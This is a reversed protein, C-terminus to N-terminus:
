FLILFAWLQSYLFLALTGLAGGFGESIVKTSIFSSFLIGAVSFSFLEKSSQFFGNRHLFNRYFRYIKQYTLMLYKQFVIFFLGVILSLLASSRVASQKLKDSIYFTLVSGLIGYYYSICEHYVM